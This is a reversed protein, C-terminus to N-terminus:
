FTKLEGRIVKETINTIQALHDDVIAELSKEISSVPAGKSPIYQVSAVLPHDIPKGIQSLLRVYLDEIGEVEDVCERAIETALLNYIKGIHNIPNKGSTAEMSMPRHPTILGNARNGRGVSGDDGMEASTGTVTMFLSETKYNDATNIEVRVARDSVQRALATIQEKMMEVTEIYADLGSCFRDVMAVCITLIIRDGERLGMIKVDSGIAPYRPRLKNDIFDSVQLILNELDSFPAHGVSFSTDNANPIPNEGCARFVERLDSSGTGMRCDVIVDKEMDLYPLTLRLYDRAAKIAITDAPIVTGEFEKSARGTLLVYIPKNVIGGGFSPFSEGAVIEGQDTNHHLVAGCEELYVQSLARSVSEAIGDALSDPHGIGKREALEIFQQEIPCQDLTEVKINRTM